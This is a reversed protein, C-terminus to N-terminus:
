YLFAKKIIDPNHKKITCLMVCFVTLICVYSEKTIKIIVPKVPVNNKNSVQKISGLFM